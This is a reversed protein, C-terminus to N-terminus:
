ELILDTLQRSLLSRFALMCSDLRLPVAKLPQDQVLPPIMELRELWVGGM